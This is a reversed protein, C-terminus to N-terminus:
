KMLVIKRLTSFSEGKGNLPSAIMRVFYVGSGASVGQSTLGNWTATYSGPMLQQSVLTSVKQGLLNYVAIETLSAKQIDFAFTTTPNFPNPYNQRLTFGAPITNRIEKVATIGPLPGSLNDVMHVGYKYITLSFSTAGTGLPQFITISQQNFMNVTGIPNGLTDTLAGTRDLIFISDCRAALFAQSPWQVVFNALAADADGNGMGLLFTDKVTPNSPIGRIDLPIFGSGYQGPKGLLQKWRADFAFGPPYEIEQYTQNISDKLYSGSATNAIYLLATDTVAFNDSVRFPITAVDNQAHVSVAAVGVLAFLLMLVRGTNLNM